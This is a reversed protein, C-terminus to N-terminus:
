TNSTFMGKHIGYDIIVPHSENTHPHTWIGINDKSIDHHSIKTNDILHTIKQMLPHNLIHQEEATFTKQKWNYVSDLMDNVEKHSLGNPHTETKTHQELKNADSLKNTHLMENWHSGSDITPALIGNHNTHYNGLEDKRIIYFPEYEKSLEGTNQSLGVLARDGDLSGHYPVKVGTDITTPKNDLMIKEPTSVKYYMRSAGVGQKKLSATKRNQRLHADLENTKSEVSGTSSLINYEYASLRDKLTEALYNLFM